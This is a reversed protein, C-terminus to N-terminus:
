KGKLAARRAKEAAIQEKTFRPKAPAAAPQRAPENVVKGQQTKVGTIFTSRVNALRDQLADLKAKFVDNNDSVNPVAELLFAREQDSVGAGSKNKIYDSIQDVTNAKFAAFKPDNQGIVALASQKASEVPGTDVTSKALRTKDILGQLADYSNLTDLQKDSLENKEEKSFEFKETRLGFERNRQELREKSLQQSVATQQVKIQEYPTLPRNVRAQEQRVADQEAYYRNEKRVRDQELMNVAIQGGAAGAGLGEEGGILGGIATPLLGALITAFNDSIGKNQQDATENLLEDQTKEAM